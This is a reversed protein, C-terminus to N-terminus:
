KCIHIYFNEFSPPELWLNDIKTLEVKSRGLYFLIPQLLVYSKKNISFSSLRLNDGVLTFLLEIWKDVWYLLLKTPLIVKSNVYNTLQYSIKKTNSNCCLCLSFELLAFDSKISNRHYMFPIRVSNEGWTIGACNCLM